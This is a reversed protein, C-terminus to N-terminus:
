VFCLFSVFSVSYSSDLSNRRPTMGITPVHMDGFSERSLISPTEEFLGTGQNGDMSKAITNDHEELLQRM